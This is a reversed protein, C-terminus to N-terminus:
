LNTTHEKAAIALEKLNYRDDMESTNNIVRVFHFTLDEESEEPDIELRYGLRELGNPLSVKIKQFFHDFLSHDIQIYKDGLPVLDIELGKELFVEPQKLASKVLPELYRFTVKFLSSAPNYSIWTHEGEHINQLGIGFLSLIKAALKNTINTISSNKLHAIRDSLPELSPIHQLDYRSHSHHLGTAM